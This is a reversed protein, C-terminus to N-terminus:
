IALLWRVTLQIVSVVETRLTTSPALFISTFMRHYDFLSKRPTSPKPPFHNHEFQRASQLACKANSQRLKDAEELLLRSRVMFRPNRILHESVSVPIVFKEWATACLSTRLFARSSSCDTCIRWTAIPYRLVYTTRPAALEFRM